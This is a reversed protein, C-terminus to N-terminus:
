TGGGKAARAAALAGDLDNREARAYTEYDSRTACGTGLIAALLLLLAIRLTM